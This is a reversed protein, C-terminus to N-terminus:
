KTLSHSVLIDQYLIDILVKKTSNGSNQNRLLAYGDKLKVAPCRVLDNRVEVYM